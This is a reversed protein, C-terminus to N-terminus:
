FRDIFEVKSNPPRYMNGIFFPKSKGVTIELWICPINNTEMDLRRKANIGNRVYVVIGGSGNSDNDKRFPEQFGDINFCSTLKHSKINTESLGFIHMSSNEPSTLIAKIKLFNCMNKGCLGQINLHGFNLDKSMLNLSSQTSEIGAGNKSPVKFRGGSGTKNLSIVNKFTQNGTNNNRKINQSKLKVRNKVVKTKKDSNNSLDASYLYECDDDENVIKTCVFSLYSCNDCYDNCACQFYHCNSCINQLPSFANSKCFLRRNRTQCYHRTGISFELLRKGCSWGNWMRFM